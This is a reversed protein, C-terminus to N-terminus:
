WGPQYRTM